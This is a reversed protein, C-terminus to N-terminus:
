TPFKIAFPCHIIRTSNSSPNWIWTAISPM